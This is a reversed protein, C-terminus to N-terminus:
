AVNSALRGTLEAAFHDILVALKEPGHNIMEIDHAIRAQSSVIDRQGPEFNPRTIRVIIGGVARVAAAENPRQLDDALIIGQARVARRKWENVWIDSHVTVRGWKHSLTQLLDKVAFGGFRDQPEDRGPGDIQHDELAFGAKLMDRQPDSFRLRILGHDQLLRRAAFTKGTGGVGLLAVVKTAAQSSV